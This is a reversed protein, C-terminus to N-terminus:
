ELEKRVLKAKPADEKTTLRTMEALAADHIHKFQPFKSPLTGEIIKLLQEIKDWDM